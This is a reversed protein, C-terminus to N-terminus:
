RVEPRWLCRREAAGLVLDVGPIAAIAEPQGNQPNPEACTDPEGDTALIVRNIGDKIRAQEALAYALRITCRVRVLFVVTGTCGM